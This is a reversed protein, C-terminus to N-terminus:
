GKNTRVGFVNYLPCSSTFATLLAIIAVALAIWTLISTPYVFFVAILALGIVLRIIRDASGVNKTFLKM